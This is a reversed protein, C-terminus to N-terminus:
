EKVTGLDMKTKSKNLVFVIDDYRDKNPRLDYTEICNKLHEPVQNKLYELWDWGQVDEVILIGDDTMIQSYMAVFQMQSELTHPGDDIMFDFKINKNVFENTFFTNDYANTNMHLIVRDNSRVEDIVNEIGIVDLGRITANTFYDKWLKISGGVHVGIELVNKATEKKSSLLSEYLELYSHRTNKDTLTDDVVSLLSM